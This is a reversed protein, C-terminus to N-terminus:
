KWSYKWYKWWLSKNVIPSDKKQQEFAQVKATLNTVMKEIKEWKNEMVIFDRKM